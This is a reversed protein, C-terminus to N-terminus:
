YMKQCNAVFNNARLLTTFLQKETLDFTQMIDIALCKIKKTTSMIGILDSLTQINKEIVEEHYIQLELLQKKYEDLILTIDSLVNQNIQIISDSKPLRKENASSPIFVM